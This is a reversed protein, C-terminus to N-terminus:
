KEAKWLPAHRGECLAIWRPRMDARQEMVSNRRGDVWERGSQTWQDVWWPHRGDTQNKASLGSAKFCARSARFGANISDTDGRRAVNVPTRRRWGTGSRSWRTAALPPAPFGFGHFWVQETTPHSLEENSAPWDDDAEQALSEQIALGCIDQVEHLHAHQERSWGCEGPKRDFARYSSGSEINRLARQATQLVDPDVGDEEDSNAIERLSPDEYMFERFLELQDPSFAVNGYADVAAPRLPNTVVPSVVVYPKRQEELQLWLADDEFEPGQDLLWDAFVMREGPEWSSLKGKPARLGSSKAWSVFREVLADDMFPEDDPPTRPRRRQWYTSKPGTALHPRLYPIGTEQDVMVGLVALSALAAAGALVAGGLGSETPATLAELGRDLLAKV